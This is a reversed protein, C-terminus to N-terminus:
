AQAIECLVPCQDLPSESQFLTTIWALLAPMEGKLKVHCNLGGINHLGFSRVFPDAKYDDLTINQATGEEVIRQKSTFKTNLIPKFKPVSLAPM